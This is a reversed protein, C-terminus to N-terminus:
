GRLWAVRVFAVFVCLALSGGLAMAILLAPQPSAAKEPVVAPDLIKFAYEDSGRALMEKNIESQLLSFVAQRIAVVDTKNAQSNLYAINRESEDIARKRLYDNALAVLDNAWKTAVQPDRWSITLTVLGTKVDTTVTRVKLKFFENAKWPTPMKKPDTVTWRQNRPDWVNWFLVPLLNNQRIYSETLAESQLVALSESKKTDGSASLGAFSAIGGMQSLLSSVGGLAAGGSNTSVPSILITARYTKPLLLVTALAIALALLVVCLVWWRGRRLESLLEAASLEPRDTSNRIIADM